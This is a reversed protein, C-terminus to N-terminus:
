NAKEGCLPSYPSFSLPFLKFLDVVIKEEWEPETAERERSTDLFRPHASWCPFKGLARALSIKPLDFIEKWHTSPFNGQSVTRLDGDAFTTPFNPIGPDFQNSVVLPNVSLKPHSRHTPLSFIGPRSRCSM